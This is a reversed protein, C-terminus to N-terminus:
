RHGWLGAGAGHTCIILGGSVGGSRGAPLIRLGRRPREAERHTCTLVSKLADANVAEPLGCVPAKSPPAERHTTTGAAGEWRHSYCRLWMRLGREDRSCGLRPASLVSVSYAWSASAAARDPALDPPSEPQPDQFASLAPPSGRPPRTQHHHLPLPAGIEGDKPDGVGDEEKKM